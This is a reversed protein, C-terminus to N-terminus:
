RYNVLHYRILQNGSTTAENFIQLLRNVRSGEESKTNREKSNPNRNSNRSMSNKANDNGKQLPISNRDNKHIANIDYRPFDFPPPTQTTSDNTARPLLIPSQVYPREQQNQSYQYRYEQQIKSQMQQIAQAIEEHPTNRYKQIPDININNNNNDSDNQNVNDTNHNDNKNINDINNNNINNVNSPTPSSTKNIKYMQAITKATNPGVGFEKQVSEM